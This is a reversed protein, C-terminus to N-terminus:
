LINWEGYFGFDGFSVTVTDDEDAAVGYWPLVAVPQCDISSTYTDAEYICVDNQTYGCEKEAIDMAEVLSMYKTINGAGTGFNIFYNKKTTM